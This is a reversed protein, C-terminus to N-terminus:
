CIDFRLRVRVTWKRWDTCRKNLLASIEFGSLRHNDLSDFVVFAIEVLRQDFDVDEIQEGLSAVRGVM